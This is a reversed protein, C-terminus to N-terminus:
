FYCGSRPGSRRVPAYLNSKIGDPVSCVMQWPMTTASTCCFEVHGVADVVVPADTRVALGRGARPFANSTVRRVGGCLVVEAAMKRLALIERHVRFLRTQRHPQRFLKTESSMVSPAPVSVQPQSVTFTLLAFAIKDRIPQSFRPATSYRGASRYPGPMGARWYVWLANGMALSLPRAHGRLHGYVPAKPLHLAPMGPRCCFHICFLRPFSGHHTKTVQCFAARSTNRPCRVTYEWNVRRPCARVPFWCLLFRVHFVDTPPAAPRSYPPLCPWRQTQPPHVARWPPTQPPSQARSGSGGARFGVNLRLRGRRSVGRCRRSRVCGRSPHARRARGAACVATTVLASSTSLMRVSPQKVAFTLPLVSLSSPATYVQYRLLVAGVPLLDRPLEAGTIRPVDRRAALVPQVSRQIGANGTDPIRFPQVILDLDGAGVACFEGGRGHLHGEADLQLVAAKFRRINGPQLRIVVFCCYARM